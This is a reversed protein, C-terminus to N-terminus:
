TWVSGSGARQDLQWFASGILSVHGKGPILEGKLAAYLPYTGVVVGFAMCFMTLSMSRTRSRTSRWVQWFLTPLLLLYTEKSLVGIGFLAGSAALTWLGRKPSFAVLFSALVWPLGICDLFVLRLDTVSLPCLGFVATGVGAWVRSCGVRRALVYTLGLSAVAYGLMLERGSVVAVSGPQYARQFWTLVALQIWGLPPHDYWYTYQALGHHPGHGTQVAWAEAMYTGEDDNDFAPWGAMGIAHVFGSFGVVPVAVAFDKWRTAIWRLLQRLVLTRRLQDDTRAGIPAPLVISSM